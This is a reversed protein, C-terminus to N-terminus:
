IWWVFGRSMGYHHTISFSHMRHDNTVKQLASFTTSYCLGVTHTASSAAQLLMSITTIELPQYPWLTSCVYSITFLSVQPLTQFPFWKSFFGLHSKSHFCDYSFSRYHKPPSCYRQCHFGNAFFAHHPKPPLCGRPYRRPPLRDTRYPKSQIRGRRYRAELTNNPRYTADVTVKLLRGAEVSHVTFFRNATRYSIPTGQGGEGGGAPQLQAEM